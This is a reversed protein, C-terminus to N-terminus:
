EIFDFFRKPVVAKVNDMFFLIDFIARLDPSKKKYIKEMPVINELRNVFIKGNLNVTTTRKELDFIIDCVASNTVYNKITIVGKSYTCEYVVNLAAEIQLIQERNREYTSRISKLLRLKERTHEVKKVLNSNTEILNEIELKLKPLLM